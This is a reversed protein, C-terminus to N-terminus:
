LDNITLPTVPKVTPPVAAAPTASLWRPPDRRTWVAFPLKEAAYYNRYAQITNGPIRYQPPMCQPPPTFGINPISHTSDFVANLEWLASRCAHYKRYRHQYEAEIAWAHQLLWHYHLQSDCVWVTSPHAIYASKYVGPPILVGKRAWSRYATSLMQCSELLMKVVHKDCLNQAAIVPDSDTYFINM